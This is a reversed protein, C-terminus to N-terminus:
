EESLKDTAMVQTKNLDNKQFTNLIEYGKLIDFARSIQYDSLLDETKIIGHRMANRKKTQKIDEKKPTSKSTKEKVDKEEKNDGNQHDPDAELHNKLDKEKIVQMSSVDDKQVKVFRASVEIDPVIGQAQISRGNPTYYRAITYKLGYGDRLPEVTQVSGKGFSTVGLILARKHDQLAGAVIESASASGSNILVVIPYNPQTKSAHAFFDKTNDESRGKISVISGQEIFLDVLKVAQDLLGGPNDRLDLILGKFSDEKTKLEDLAEIIDDVTKERFNTVWLYGYDDGIPASRVSEIPIIDRVIEIDIPKTEGDRHITITVPTGKKGRMKRVAEWMEMDQTSEGNVKIIRDGAKVGKRYAPTGEIPSVVTLVGKKMTIVIGIGGFEGQTDIQLEEFAEPPMFSSHPDLSRIMGQIASHILKKTDVTDVYNNEVLSIIDTFLKLGDYTEQKDAYVNQFCVISFISCMFLIMLFTIKKRM